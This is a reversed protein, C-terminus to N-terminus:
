DMKPSSARALTLRSFFRVLGSAGTVPCMLDAPIWAPGPIAGCDSAPQPQPLGLAFPLVLTVPVKSMANAKLAGRTRDLSRPTPPAAHVERKLM